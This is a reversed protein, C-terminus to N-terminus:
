HTISPPPPHVFYSALALGSVRIQLVRRPPILRIQLFSEGPAADTQLDGGGDKQSGVQAMRCGVTRGRGGQVGRSFEM